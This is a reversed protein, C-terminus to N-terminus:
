DNENRDEPPYDPLNMVEQYKATAIDNGGLDHYAKYTRHLAEKAYLPCYLKKTYEKHDRLIEARLMCQMGNRIAHITKWSAIVTAVCGGCVLPVAWKVTTDLITNLM